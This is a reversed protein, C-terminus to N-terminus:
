RASWQSVLSSKTFARGEGSLVVVRIDEREFLSEGAAVIAEKMAPDVANMKDGRTLTVKAIHNEVVVSVRDM